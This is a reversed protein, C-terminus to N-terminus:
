KWDIIDFLEDLKPTLIIDIRRNKARAERTDETDVPFYEGRGAATILQPNIDKNKLIEKVVSTSRMVSLDWNDKVATPGRYPVNDTHGEITINIDKDNALVKGLELLIEKGKNDIDWSGSAFLLKEDLSIFVKGNTERITLGLEIFGKLAEAVRNRLAKVDADKQALMQKLDNLEKQRAHLDANQGSFSKLLDNYDMDIKRFKRGADTTDKKLQVIEATLKENKMECDKKESNTYTLDDTCKQYLVILDKYKIKKPKKQKPPNGFAIFVCALLMLLITNRKM